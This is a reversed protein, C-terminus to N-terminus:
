PYIDLRLTLKKRSLAETLEPTLMIGSDGTLFVGVFFEVEGGTSTCTKLYTTDALMPSALESKLSEELEAEQAVELEFSVYTRSYTGDLKTGKSTRRQEGVSNAIKPKRGFHAIIDDAPWTPHFVRLSVKFRFKNLQGVGLKKEIAISSL